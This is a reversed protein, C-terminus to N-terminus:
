PALGGGLSSELNFPPLSGNPAGLIFNQEILSASNNYIERYPSTLNLIQVRSGYSSGRNHNSNRASSNSSSDRRSFM